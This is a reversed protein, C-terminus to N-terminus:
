GHLKSRGPLEDARGTRLVHRWSLPPQHLEPSPPRICSGERKQRHTEMRGPQSLCSGNEKATVAPSRTQVVIFDLRVARQLSVVADARRKIARKLHTTRVPVAACRMLQCTRLRPGSEQGAGPQDTDRGERGCRGGLCNQGMLKWQCSKPHM